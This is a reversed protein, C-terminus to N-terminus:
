RSASLFLSSLASWFFAAHRGTSALSIGKICISFLPFGHSRQKNDGAQKEGRMRPRDIIPPGGCERLACDFRDDPVAVAGAHVDITRGSLGLRRRPHENFKIADIRFEFFLDVNLEDDVALVIWEGEIFDM